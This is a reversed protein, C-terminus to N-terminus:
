RLGQEFFSDETVSDLATRLDERAKRLRSAVTGPPVGLYEAIERATLEELEYLVFVERREPIMNDLAWQIMALAQKRELADAPDVGPALPDEELDDLWTNRVQQRARRRGVDRAVNVCAACVYAKLDGRNALDDFKRDAAVLVTQLADDVEGDHVGLRQLVRFAVKLLPEIATRFRAHRDAILEARGMAGDIPM